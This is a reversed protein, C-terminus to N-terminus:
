ANHNMELHYFLIDYARDAQQHLMHMGNVVHAGRQEAKKLFLTTEPNYILDIFVQRPQIDDYPIDPAEDVQPFMGLPTTNIVVDYGQIGHAKLWEYNQERSRSIVTTRCNIKALAYKVSQAAGGNGLIVASRIPRDVFSYVTHEFGGVDTNYGILQHGDKVVLNVSNTALAVPGIDNLYPVIEQKFPITVNFGILDPIREFLAPAESVHDLEFLDYRGKVGNRKFKEAFYKQSFSHKLTKGILGFVAEPM